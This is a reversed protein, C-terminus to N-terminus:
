LDQFVLNPLNRVLGTNKFSQILKRDSQSKKIDKEKSHKYPFTTTAWKFYWCISPKDTPFYTKMNKHKCTVKPEMYTRYHTRSPPIEIHREGKLTQLSINNIGM